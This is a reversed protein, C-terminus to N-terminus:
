EQRLAALLPGRLAWRTAVVIWIWGNVLLAAMLMGVAAYPVDGGAALLTPAVALLASVAGGVLGLGLLWGHEYVLLRVLHGKDFGVARLMALEGRRELVNRGVVIALGVSGLAVGLGGLLLFMSLYTNEVTSLEALREATQRVELGYDRGARSLAQEVAEAQERPAEILFVRYGEEEPWLARFAEEDVILSGQLVSNKLAGVLRLTAERGQGDRVAVTDGLQKGLAWVITANDAIAPIVHEGEVPELWRWPSQGEVEDITGAFGFAERKALDQADVGLVQPVQARNLNLCSADDGERLRMPVVDVEEPSGELRFAARGAKSSLDETIPVAARAMLAFAGTGSERKHVGALPDKRNAGVALVLFSGVALLAVVALSRGRRRSANRWAFGRASWHGLRGDSGDMRGLAAYAGVLVALLLLGGAGFFVGVASPGGELLGYGTLALAGAAGGGGAWVVWSRRWNRGPTPTEVAGTGTLLERVTQGGQRWLTLWMAGAAVALGVGGGLALSGSSAAFWVQAGAIAGQWMTGLAAVMLRGYLVGAAVGAVSGAAALVLKEALLVRRVRGPEFGVALLLGVEGQRQEIGFVFLLATLGVAAAILFFSLGVFLGGLSMAQDVAALAEARVPRWFLGVAAPDVAGEVRRRVQEAEALPYRVATLTGYRNGWMRQAAALTVFAKPTGRYAEWYGEDKPRIRDLDIPAGAQWEGCSAAEAMGAFAPMLNPDVAPGEMAAVARVRFTSSVETLKGAAGELVYYRLTLEDGVAAGLDAALWENVVVEDVRMDAPTLDGLGGTQVGAVMSYPTDHEGAALTNVLYTLVGVAQESAAQAARAVPESMFVRRSSLQVVGKDPLVELELGLDELRLMAALAEQAQGTTIDREPTGQGALLMNARGELEVKRSLWALDVYANMPTTQDAQLSFRGFQEPGVVARVTLREAVTRDWDPGLPAERPLLTPRRVRLVVTEGAQVGLRQALRRNLVVGAEDTLPNSAGGLRWFGEDVGLVEVRNCRRGSDSHVAMGGLRLGAAAEAGLREGVQGALEQRFYRGESEVAWHVRGLRALATRRLSYDVSDGVVLAGTLVAAALAVGGAVAIHTRWYHRLSRGTLTWITM